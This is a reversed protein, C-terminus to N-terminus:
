DSADVEGSGQEMVSDSHLVRRRYGTPSDGMLRKFATSFAFANEYGVQRAVDEVSYSDSALLAAAHRMRLLTVYRM